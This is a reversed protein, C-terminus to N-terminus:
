KLMYADKFFLSLRLIAGIEEWVARHGMEKVITPIGRGLGDIFRMNDLYQVLFPNRAASNGYKIKELTLTNPLKGASNLEIRDSFLYIQNKRQYLSYDRHCVANVVAERITKTSILHKEKRKIDEVKSNVPLFVRILNTAQEILEPLSGKLEKKDVLEDTLEIGKFIAFTIGSQPLYRQPEKGFILIGGVTCVKQGDLEQIIDTNLLLRDKEEESLDYYPLQYYTDSYTHLM